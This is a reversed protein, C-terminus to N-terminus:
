DYAQWRGVENGTAVERLQVAGSRGGIAALKGDPSFAAAAVVNGYQWPPQAPSSDRTNWLRATRDNGVTLALKGDPSFSAGMVQGNQSMPPGLPEGTAANWLRSEGP